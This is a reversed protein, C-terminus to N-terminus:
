AKREELMAAELLCYFGRPVHSEYANCWDVGDFNSCDVCYLRQLKLETGMM